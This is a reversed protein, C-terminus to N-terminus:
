EHSAEREEVSKLYDLLNTDKIQMPSRLTSKLGNATLEEYPIGDEFVHCLRMGMNNEASAHSPDKLYKEDEKTREADLTSLTFINKVMKPFIDKVM